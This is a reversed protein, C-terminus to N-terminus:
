ALRCFKETAARITGSVGRVSLGVRVGDVADVCAIAARAADAEGHRARVVAEGEGDEENFRFDVVRLDAAASGPDGLLNQAAYWCERQFSRREISAGELTSLEVVLYRWRPRLHKPLHKM